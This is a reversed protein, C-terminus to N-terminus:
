FLGSNGHKSKEISVHLLLIGDYYVLCDHNDSTDVLLKVCLNQHLKTKFYHQNLVIHFYWVAIQTKKLTSNLVLFLHQYV